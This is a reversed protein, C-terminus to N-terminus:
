HCCEQVGLPLEGLSHELIVVPTCVRAKGLDIRHNKIM